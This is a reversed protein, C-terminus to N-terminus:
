PAARTGDLFQHLRVADAATPEGDGDLDANLVVIEVDEGVLWAALADYDAQNVTGEGLVDGPVGNRFTGSSADLAVVEGGARAASRVSLDLPSVEGVAGERAEFTVLAFAHDGTAGEPLSTTLLMIIEGTVENHHSTLASQPMDGARVGKVAVVAPDYTLVVSATGLGGANELRLPVEVPVLPAGSVVGMALTPAGSGSAAGKTSAATLGIDDSYTTYAIAAGAVLLAAAVGAALKWSSARSLGPQHYASTM